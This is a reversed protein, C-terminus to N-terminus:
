YGIVVEETKEDIPHGTIAEVESYVEKEQVLSKAREIM